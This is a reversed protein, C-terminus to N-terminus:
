AARTLDSQGTREGPEETRASAATCTALAEVTDHWREVQRVELPYHRRRWVLVTWMVALTALFLLLTM